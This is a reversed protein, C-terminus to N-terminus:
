LCFLRGLLAWTPLHGGVELKLRGKRCTSGNFAPSPGGSSGLYNRPFAAGWVEVESRSMHPRQPFPHSPTPLLPPSCPCSFPPLLRPASSVSHWSAPDGHGAGCHLAAPARVQARRDVEEAALDSRVAEELPETALQVARQMRELMQKKDPDTTESLKVSLPQSAAFLAGM